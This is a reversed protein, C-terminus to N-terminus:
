VGPTNPTLSWEALVRRCTNYNGLQCLALRDLRCSIPWNALSWNPEGVGLTIHPHFHEGASKSLYDATWRLSRDRVQSETPDLIYSAADPKAGAFPRLGEVIARHLQQLESSRELKIGSMIPDPQQDYTEPEGSLEFPRTIAAAAILLVAKIAPLDASRVHAMFLSCHALRDTRNLTFPCDTPLSEGLRIAFDESAEDPRLVVDIAIVKSEPSVPVM